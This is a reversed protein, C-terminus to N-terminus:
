CTSNHWILTSRTTIAIFSYEMSWLIWSSFCNLTMGCKQPPCPPPSISRCPIFDTYKLGWQFPPNKISSKQKKLKKTKWLLCHNYLLIVFLNVLYIFLNVFSCSLILCNPWRNFKRLSFNHVEEKGVPGNVFKLSFFFLVFFQHWKLMREWLPLKFMIKDERICGLLSSTWSYVM